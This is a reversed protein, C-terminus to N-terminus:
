CGLRTTTRSPTRAAPLESAPGGGPRHGARRRGPGDDARRRLDGGPPRRRPVRGRVDHEHLRRHGRRLRQPDQVPRRPRPRLPNDPHGTRDDVPARRPQRLDQGAPGPGRRQPQGGGRRVHHPRPRPDHQRLERAPGRGVQGPSRGGAQERVNRAGHRRLLLDQHRLRRRRRPQHVPGQAGPRRDRLRDAAAAPHAADPEVDLDHIGRHGPQVLRHRRSGGDPEPHAPQQRPAAQRRGRRERVRCRHRGQRRGAVRVRHQQPRERPAAPRGAPDGERRRRRGAAARVRRRDARARGAGPGADGRRGGRRGRGDVQGLRDRAHAPRQRQEPPRERRRRAVGDAVPQVPHRRGRHRRPRGAAKKARSTDISAINAHAYPSRLVAIHVMGQLQIDDLYRGKGTIFRPDEVRKVPAGLVDTTM